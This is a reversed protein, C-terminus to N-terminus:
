KKEILIGKRIGARLLSSLYYLINGSDKKLLVSSVQKSTVEGKAWAIALYIEEDSYKLSTPQRAIVKKAQEV